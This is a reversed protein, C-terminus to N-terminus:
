GPYQGPPCKGSGTNEETESSDSTPRNGLNSRGGDVEETTCTFNDNKGDEVTTFTCSKQGQVSAWVGGNAECSRQNHGDAGAMSAGGIGLSGALAAAAVLGTIKRM